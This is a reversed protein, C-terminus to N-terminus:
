KMVVVERKQTGSWGRGRRSTMQVWCAREMTKRKRSREVLGRELRGRVGKGGM